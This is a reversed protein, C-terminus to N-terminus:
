SLDGWSRVRKPAICIIPLRDISMSRYQPYKKRLLLVARHHRAGSKLLRASGFV